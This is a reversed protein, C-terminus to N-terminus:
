ETIAKNDEVTASEDVPVDVTVSQEPIKSAAPPFAPTEEGAANTTSSTITTGTDVAVSEDAAELLKKKRLYEQWEEDTYGEPRTVDEAYARVPVCLVVMCLVLVLALLRSVNKRMM